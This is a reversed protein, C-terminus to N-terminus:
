LETLNNANNLLAREATSVFFQKVQSPESSTLIDYREGKVFNILTPITKVKLWSSIDGRDADVLVMSVNDLQSHYNSVLPAIRKCPGCWDAGFKVIILGPNEALKKFLEASNGLKTFITPAM